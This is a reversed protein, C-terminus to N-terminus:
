LVARVEELGATLINIKFSDPNRFNMNSLLHPDFERAALNITDLHAPGHDFFNILKPDEDGREFSIGEALIKAEKIGVYKSQAVYAEQLVSCESMTLIIESRLRHLEAMNCYVSLLSPTDINRTNLINSVNGQM